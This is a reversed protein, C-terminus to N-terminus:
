QFCSLEPIVQEVSLPNIIKRIALSQHAIELVSLM